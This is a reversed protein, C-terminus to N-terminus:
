IKVDTSYLLQKTFDPTPTFAPDKSDAYVEATYTGGALGTVDVKHTNDLYPTDVDWALIREKNLLLQMSLNSWYNRDDEYKLTYYAYGDVTCQCVWTLGYFTDIPIVEGIDFQQSYYTKEGLDTKGIIKVMYGSHSELDNVSSDYSGSATIDIDKNYTNTLGTISISLPVKDDNQVSCTYYIHGSDTKFLPDITPDKKLYGGGVVTVTAVVAVTVTTVSATVTGITKTLTGVNENKGKEQNLNQNQNTNQNQNQEQNQNNPNQTGGNLSNFEKGAAKSSSESIRKSESVYQTPFEKLNKVNVEKGSKNVEPIKNNSDPTFM